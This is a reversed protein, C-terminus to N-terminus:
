TSGENAQEHYTSQSTEWDIAWPAPRARLTAELIDVLVDNRYHHICTNWDDTKAARDVIFEVMLRRAPSGKETGSYIVNVDELSPYDNTSSAKAIISDIVGNKLKIDLIEEGFVYMKMLFAFPSDYAEIKPIPLKGTYLWTVYTNVVEFEVHSFNFAWSNIMWCGYRLEGVINHFLTNAYFTNEHVFFNNSVDTSTPKGAIFRIM